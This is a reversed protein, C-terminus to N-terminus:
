QVYAREGITQFIPLTVTFTSGVGPKSSATIEGSHREVIRRCIALGMGSGEYEQRSHLRQFPKFIRDLYQEEFGIGNDKVQIQCKSDLIQATVLVTPPTDEQHFKLGNTILNQLLQHMQTPDAEIVPLNEIVVYGHTRDIQYELDSVVEQALSNLDVVDFPQARTTVRSFSLLDNILTQMRQSADRMRKLYDRGTEDLLDGYKSALRDGFALVKRLPEQLDHSAIYAFEQLDRNSQELRAAYIKLDVEARKSITIDDVSLLLHPESHSTFPTFRCDLWIEKGGASKTHIEKRTENGSALAERAADLMGSKKWIKSQNYNEGLVQDRTTGLIKLFSENALICEGSTDYTGIGLSSSNILTKNYELADAIRQQDRKREIAMAVQTSAFEMLDVHEQAYAVGETYNQTVMVGTLREGVMLPVGVWEISDTGIIEVEGQEELQTFVKQSAWLPKKTRMVYETLGHEPKGPTPPEDYQDIYYPFSILDDAADYLAIYFNQIPILEGLISHISTYLEELSTTSIVAHSIRYTIGQIQEARKRATIDVMVGQWFLPKGKRDRVLRTEDSVWIIRGDRTTIRYESVSPVMATYTRTYEEIVREQDEPFIIRNWLNIDTLWEEPDYGTLSKLQPSIYLTEFINEASDTYIVAPVQEVLARYRVEMTSEISKPEKGGKKRGNASRGGDIPQTTEPM